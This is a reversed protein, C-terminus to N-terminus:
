LAEFVRREARRAQPMVRAFGPLVPLSARVLSRAARFCRDRGRGWRFGFRERLAPPLLGLTVVSGVDGLVRPVLPLPPHLVADALERAQPTVELEPGEIQAAVAADFAPADAPLAEDPVRLLRAVQKSEEYLRAREEASLPAVFCEYACRASDVLTAHVWFLLAPDLARYPTGAPLFATPARLMGSVREHIENVRAASALAEERTGYIIGLMAELTRRLRGLPDDRFRSHDAVGAAVLPHALQMLLARPGALLLVAERNVRWMLSDPTYLGDQSAFSVRRSGSM